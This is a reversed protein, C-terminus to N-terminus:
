ASNSETTDDTEDDDINTNNVLGEIVKDIQEESLQNFDVNANFKSETQKPTIHSYIKAFFDYRKDIPLAFFDERMRKSVSGCFVAGWEQLYKTKKNLSGKPRGKPNGSQGKQFKAM